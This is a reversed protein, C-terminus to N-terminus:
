RFISLSGVNTMPFSEAAAGKRSIIKKKVGKSQLHPVLQPRV